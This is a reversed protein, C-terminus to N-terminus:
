GSVIWQGIGKRRRVDVEGGCPPSLRDRIPGNAEAGPHASSRGGKSQGKQRKTQGAPIREGPVLARGSVKQAEVAKRKITRKVVKNPGSPNTGGPRASSRESETSRWAKAIGRGERTPLMIAVLEVVEEAM